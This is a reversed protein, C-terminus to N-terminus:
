LRKESKKVTLSDIGIILLSTLITSGIALSIIRMINNASMYEITFYIACYFLTATLTYKVFPFLGLSRISLVPDSLEDDRTVYLRLIMRRFAMLLTCCLANMGLTDSFIDVILGVAFGLTFLWEKSLTIPLKLLIYLFAFPVAVGWVCVHNFILAQALLIM